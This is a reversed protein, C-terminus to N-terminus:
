GGAQEYIREFEQLFRSAIEADHVILVAEDNYEEASRTFNYSGLVVAQDDVIFVKHHMLGENGDLLVDLGAQRLRAFEAGAASVQGADVVGRVTVGARSRELLVEGIPDSTFSFALFEISNRAGSLLEIIRRAVGDEPSFLVEVEVGEVTVRPYPTDAQSLAGFRDEVFMEEFERTFDEAVPGSRIRILNNNDRYASGTTLNMSGMWVEFRDVVIFKHHMLPERRDGVVPIGADALRQVEPELLNDSEVVLRVDLGRGHARLLADRMSWLDLHYIAVDVSYRAADVAEALAQDPGGRLSEAAPDSPDTFYLSSWGAAEPAEIRPPTDQRSQQGQFLFFGGALLLLFGLAGLPAPIQQIRIRPM